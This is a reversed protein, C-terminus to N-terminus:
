HTILNARLNESSSNQTLPNSNHNMKFVQSNALCAPELQPRKAAVSTNYINTSSLVVSHLSYNSHIGFLRENFSCIHFLHEAKQEMNM